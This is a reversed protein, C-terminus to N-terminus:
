SPGSAAAERQLHSICYGHAVGVAGPHSFDGWGQFPRIM